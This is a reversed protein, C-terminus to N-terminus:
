RTKFPTYTETEGTLYRGLLRAELELLRHYTIRYGFVPHTTEQAMRREFTAIFRKRGAETLNIRGAAGIFDSPRIEGNNIAQIVCSDAVLPRFPEMMDLALAPRGYRPQHYYGRYPDLGVSSLAVTWARTLLAYAYSLLANVPDTPPRRNRSTFDFAALSDDTTKLMNSFAGFYRAAAAGEIGLLAQITPAEIANVADRKLSQLLRRPREEGRWNRRLLTRGNLIKAQVLRRALHLCSADDFSAAYQASRLEVNKHGTGVTHGLFWGGHSYWSVTIQRRMLEHLTPTTVYVSGMVILQSIEVLRASHSDGEKVQIELREGRKAVKARHSQVYVPRAEDRVVALPRPQAGGQRLYNVEDPLCISVLACRPCKPSDELPPPIEKREAIERLGQISRLTLERLSDDFRVRVRERSAIFYLVGEECRYGHEELILGQACVQVREPDYAGKALHPRKGKKYDVPTVTRGKGEVLDMRAVIHHRSSALTISRTHFRVEDEVRDAEPLEGGPKDIRRHRHRGEVTDASDAWECQVWMLYALRPCYCYENVMRVPLPPTDHGPERRRATDDM